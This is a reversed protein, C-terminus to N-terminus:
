CKEGMQSQSCNCNLFVVRKGQHDEEFAVEVCVFTGASFLSMTVFEGFLSKLSKCM